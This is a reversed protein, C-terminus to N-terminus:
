IILRLKEYLSLTNKSKIKRIIKLKFITINRYIVADYIEPRLINKEFLANLKKLNFAKFPKKPTIIKRNAKLKFVM